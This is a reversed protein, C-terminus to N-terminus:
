KAQDPERDRNGAGASKGWAMYERGVGLVQWKAQRGTHGVAMVKYYFFCNSM